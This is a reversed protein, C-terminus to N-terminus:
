IAVPQLMPLPGDILGSERLRVEPDRAFPNIPLDPRTAALFKDRIARSAEFEADMVAMRKNHAREEMAHYIEFFLTALEFLSKM